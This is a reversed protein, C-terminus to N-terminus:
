REAEYFMNQGQFRGQMTLELIYVPGIGRSGLILGIEMALKTQNRLLVPSTAWGQIRCFCQRLQNQQEIKGEPTPWLGVQNM